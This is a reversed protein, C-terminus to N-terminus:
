GCVMKGWPEVLIQEGSLKCFLKDEQKEFIQYMNREGKLDNETM